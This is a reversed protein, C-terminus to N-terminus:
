ETGSKIFLDYSRGAKHVDITLPQRANGQKLAGTQAAERIVMHKMVNYQQPLLRLATCMTREEDSLKHGGPATEVDVATPDESGPQEQDRRLKRRIRASKPEEAAEDTAKKDPQPPEIVEIGRQKYLQLQEIRKRLRLEEIMGAVLKDQEEASQFRAFPRMSKVLELEEVSLKKELENRRKFDYLKRELVFQKRKEREDLKANYISLIKLKQERDPDDDKFEMDAIILEADDDWEVAFENRLPMYGSINAATPDLSKAKKDKEKQKKNKGARPTAGESAEGESAEESNKKDAEGAGGATKRRKSGQWAFV